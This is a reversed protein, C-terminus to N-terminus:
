LNPLVLNVKVKDELVDMKKLIPLRPEEDACSSQADDSCDSVGLSDRNEKM